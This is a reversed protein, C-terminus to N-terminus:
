AGTGTYQRLGRSWLLKAFISVIVLGVTISTLSPIIVENGVRGILYATPTFVGNAFPLSMFFPRISDPFIDLPIVEGSLIWLSINKAITISQVRNLYFALTCTLFSLVYLFVLYFFAILLAMPLRSFIIPLDFSACVVIPISLSILSTILKYGMFQSFYYEFFTIPRVLVSNVTGSNIEEVMRVEYMWNVTIRSLFSAWIAYSLYSERSFGAIQIKGSSQFVAMWLTLEIGASVLPTIIADIFYNLRYELNTVIALKALAWNKRM